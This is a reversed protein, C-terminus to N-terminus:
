WSRKILGRYFQGSESHSKALTYIETAPEDPEREAEPGGMDTKVWGPDFSYVRIGKSTIDKSFYLTRTYMNLATKSICYSPFDEGGNETLSGMQSSINIIVGNKNIFPILQQTLIITGVLNINLCKRLDEFSIKDEVEPSWAANNVLVDITAGKEKLQNVFNNISAEDALNLQFSSINPHQNNIKGDTSTTIVLYNNDLFEKVTAKGIGRSGGTVLVTKM